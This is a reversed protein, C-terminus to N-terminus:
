DRRAHRSHRHKPIGGIGGPGALKARDLAHRRRDPHLYTRDVHTIGGLDLAVNSGERTRRIAAQDDQRVSQRDYMAIQDDRKGGWTPNIRSATNWMVASSPRARTGICDMMKRFFISARILDACSSPPIWASM